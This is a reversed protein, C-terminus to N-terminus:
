TKRNTQQKKKEMVPLDFIDLSALSFFSKRNARKLFESVPYLYRSTFRKCRFTLQKPVLAPIVGETM